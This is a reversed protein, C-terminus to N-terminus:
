TIGTTQEHHRRERNKESNFHFINLIFIAQNHNYIIVLSNSIKNAFIKLYVENILCMYGFINM